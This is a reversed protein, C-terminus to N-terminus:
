VKEFNFHELGGAALRGRIEPGRGGAAVRASM